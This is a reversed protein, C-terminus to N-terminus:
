THQPLFTASSHVAVVDVSFLVSSSFLALQTPCELFVLTVSAWLRELNASLCSPAYRNKSLQNFVTLVLCILSKALRSFGMLSLRFQMNEWRKLIGSNGSRAKKHQPTNNHCIPKKGLDQPTTLSDGNGPRYNFCFPGQDRLAHDEAAKQVKGNAGMMTTM